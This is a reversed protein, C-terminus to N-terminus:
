FNTFSLSLFFLLQVSSKFDIATVMKLSEIWNHLQIAIDEHFKSVKWSHFALSLGRYIKKMPFTLM